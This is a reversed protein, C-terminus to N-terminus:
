GQPWFGGSTESENRETGKKGITLPSVGLNHEKQTPKTFPAAKRDWLTNRGGKQIVLEM